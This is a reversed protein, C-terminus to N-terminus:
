RRMRRHDDLSAILQALEVQRSLGHKDYIHRIHWKVTTRSRGTEAAIEDITRAQALLVAVRSEAPTLGLAEAVRRPDLARRAAPDSILVLAGVRSRPPYPGDGTVPSVHLALRPLPAPRSVPMSGSAGTGGLFPLAQALLRQLRSNELPLTAWLCGGRDFLGGPENLLACARDNAATVRGRRDLRIVGLRDNDLLDLASAGLARADILAQRVRVFQRLHPMLREIARVRASPWGDGEVPDGIAWMIRTGDPGDLRVNLSDQGCSRSLIDNYAVSTKMENGVYLSPTHAVQSDPLRRMRPIREDLPHFVKFYERLLDPHHEGRYCLRAFFIDVDDPPAGDGSVLLNGKSGCLEDILGSAAPWGADDFAAAHLSELVRGFLDRGSM